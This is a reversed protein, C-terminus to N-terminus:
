GNDIYKRKQSEGMKNINSYLEKQAQKMAAKTEEKRKGEKDEVQRKGMKKANRDALQGWTTAEGKVFFSPTAFIKQLSEEGCAECKTLPDEEYKQYVDSFSTGCKTCEYDHLPM